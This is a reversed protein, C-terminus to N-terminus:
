RRAAGLCQCRRRRNPNLALPPPPRRIAKAPPCSPSDGQRRRFLRPSDVLFTSQAPTLTYFHKFSHSTPYHALEQIELVHTPQLIKALERNHIFPRISYHLCTNVLSSITSWTSVPGLGSNRSRPGV